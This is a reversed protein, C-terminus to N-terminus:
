KSEDEDLNGEDLRKMFNFLAKRVGGKAKNTFKNKDYEESFM